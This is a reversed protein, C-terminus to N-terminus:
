ESIFVTSTPGHWTINWLSMIDRGILLGINKKDMHNIKTKEIDFGLNCSGIMLNLIQQLGTGTFSLNVTYLPNRQKGAATRSINNGISVLGLQDALSEDISTITAGEQSDVTQTYTNFHFIHTM